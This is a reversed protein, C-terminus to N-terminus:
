HGTKQKLFLNIIMKVCNKEEEPLMRFGTIMEAEQPELRYSEEAGTERQDEKYGVIYDISTNFYEAMRKLIEIEPEINHNEYKNISPQSVGIADALKQQSIGYKRRLLKLNSLM